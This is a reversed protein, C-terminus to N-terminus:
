GKGQEVRAKLATLFEHLKVVAALMSMVQLSTDMNHPTIVSEYKYDDPNNGMCACNGPVSFQPVHGDREDRIYAAADFMSSNRTSIKSMAEKFKAKTRCTLRNYYTMATKAGDPIQTQGVLSSMLQVALPSFGVEIHCYEGHQGVEINLLQNESSLDLSSQFREEMFFRNAIGLLAGMRQTQMNLAGWKIQKKGGISFNIFPLDYYFTLVGDLLTIPTADMLDKAVTNATSQMQHYLAQSLTIEFGGDSLSVLYLQQSHEKLYYSLM